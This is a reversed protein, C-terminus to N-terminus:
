APRAARAEGRATPLSAFPGRPALRHRAQPLTQMDKGHPSRFSEGRLAEAITKKEDKTCYDLSSLDQAAEAAGRQTFNVVYVPARGSEVLTKTAEQLLKEEYDFQLPVPRKGSRM